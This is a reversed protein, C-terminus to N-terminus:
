QRVVLEEPVRVSFKSGRGVVSDILLKCHHNEVAQKVIALGLGSGGKSSNRDKDVRYFRETLRPIHEAPIGPGNDIVAFEMQQGVRQWRM